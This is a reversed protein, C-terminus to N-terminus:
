GPKKVVLEVLFPELEARQAIDRLEAALTELLRAEHDLEDALTALRNSLPTM